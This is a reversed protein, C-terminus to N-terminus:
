DPVNDGTYYMDCTDGYSDAVSNDDICQVQNLNWEHYMDALHGNTYLDKLQTWGGIYSGNIFLVPVVKHQVIDQIFDVAAHMNELHDFDVVTTHYGISSM